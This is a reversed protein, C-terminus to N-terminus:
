DCYSSATKYTYGNTNHKGADIVFALIDMPKGINVYEIYIDVVYNSYYGKIQAFNTNSAQQQFTTPNKECLAQKPTDGEEHTYAMGKFWSFNQAVLKSNETIFMNKLEQATRFEIGGNIVILKGDEFELFYSIGYSNNVYGDYETKAFGDKILKDVILASDVGLTSELLEVTLNTFDGDFTKPEDKKNCSILTVVVFLAMVSAISLIKKMIKLNKITLLIIRINIGKSETFLSM